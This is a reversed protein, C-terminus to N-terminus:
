FKSLYVLSILRTGHFAWFLVRRRVAPRLLHYLLIGGSLGKPRPLVHTGMLLLTFADRAIHEPDPRGMRCLHRYHPVEVAPLRLPAGHVQQAPSDPLGKHGPELPIVDILIRHFGRVPADKELGIGVGEVGLGPGARGGLEILQPFVPPPVPGPQLVPLVVRDVVSRQIDILDMQPRPASCPLPLEEGIPVNSM